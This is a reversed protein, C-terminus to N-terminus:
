DIQRSPQKLNTIVKTQSSELFGLLPDRSRDSPGAHYLSRVPIFAALVLDRPHWGEGGHPFLIEMIIILVFFGFCLLSWIRAIRRILSALNSPNEHVSEM